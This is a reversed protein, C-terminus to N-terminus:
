LRVEYFERGRTLHPLLANIRCARVWVERGSKLHRPHGRRDHPRPSAHTGKAAAAIVPVAGGPVLITPGAEIKWYTPIPAKGRKVRAKNLKDDAAVRIVSSRSDAILSLITVAFGQVAGRFEDLEEKPLDSWGTRGDALMIPLLCGIMFDHEDAADIPSVKLLFTSPFGAVTV